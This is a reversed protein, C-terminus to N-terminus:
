TRGRKENDILEQVDQKNLVHNKPCYLTYVRDPKGYAKIHEYNQAVVFVNIIFVLVFLFVLNKM